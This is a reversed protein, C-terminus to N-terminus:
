DVLPKGRHSQPTWSELLAVAAMAASWVVVV